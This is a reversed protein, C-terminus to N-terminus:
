FKCTYTLTVYTIIFVFKKLFFFPVNPVSLKPKTQNVCRTNSTPFEGDNGKIM